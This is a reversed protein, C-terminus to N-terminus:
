SEAIKFLEYQSTKGRAELSCAKCRKYEPRSVRKGCDECKKASYNTRKNEHLTTLNCERSCFRAIKRDGLSRPLTFHKGCRECDKEVRSIKCAASCLKRIRRQVPSLHAVGFTKGCRECTAVPGPDSVADYILLVVRPDDSQFFTRGFVEVVQSDDNWIVGTGADLCTKLLNDVDTRQRTRRFFLARIGYDAGDPTHKARMLQEKLAWGLADRYKTYRKPMYTRKGTVRPRPSPLPDGRLFCIMLQRDPDIRYPWSCINAVIDNMDPLKNM